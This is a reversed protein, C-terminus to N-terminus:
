ISYTLGSFRLARHLRETVDYLHSLPDIKFVVLFENLLTGCLWDYCQDLLRTEFDTGEGSDYYHLYPNAYHRNGSLVVISTNSSKDIYFIATYERARYVFIEQKKCKSQKSRHGYRLVELNVYGLECDTGSFHETYENIPIRLEITGSYRREIFPIKDLVSMDKVHKGNKYIITNYDSYAM